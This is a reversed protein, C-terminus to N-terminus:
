GNKKGGNSKAKEQAKRMEELQEKLCAHATTKADLAQQLEEIKKDKAELEATNDVTETRFEDPFLEMTAKAIELLHKQCYNQKTSPPGGAEGVSFDGQNKCM